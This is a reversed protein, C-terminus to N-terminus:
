YGLARLGAVSGMGALIAVLENGRLKTAVITAVLGAIEPMGGKLAPPLIIALMVALPIADLGARVRPTMPIFRMFGYGAYRCVAAAVAMAVILSLTRNDLTM